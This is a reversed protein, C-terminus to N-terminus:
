CTRILAVDRIDTNGIVVPREIRVRDVAVDDLFVAEIGADAGLHVLETHVGAASARLFVLHWRFGFGSTDLLYYQFLLSAVGDGLCGHVALPSLVDAPISDTTIPRLLM